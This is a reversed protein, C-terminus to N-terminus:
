GATQLDWLMDFRLAQALGKAGEVIDTLTSSLSNPALQPPPWNQYNGNTSNLTGPTAYMAIITDQISNALLSVRGRNIHMPPELPYSLHVMLVLPIRGGFTHNKEDGNNRANTVFFQFAPFVIGPMVKLLTGFDWQGDILQQSTSLDYNVIIPKLGSYKPILLTQAYQANFGKGPDTFRALFNTIASENILYPNSIAL